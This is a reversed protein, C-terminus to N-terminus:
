LPLVSGGASAWGLVSETIQGECNPDTSVFHDVGTYCRYLEIGNVATPSIYGELGMVFQGECGPDTSVFYDDNGQVCSYLARTFDNTATEYLYGLTSELHFASTNVWGTSVEHVNLDISDTASSDYRDFARLPANPTWVNWAIDWNGVDGSQGRQLPTANPAPRPMSTSLYTEVEGNSGTILSGTPDRLFSGIFNAEYGTMTTDITDLQQWTGTLMDSTRYLQVGPQGREVFGGTTSPARLPLDYLAYTYGDAPNYALDDISSLPYQLGATSLTQASATTFHVGDTSTVKESPSTVNASNANMWVMDISSGTTGSTNWADPQGVGYYVGGTSTHTVVPTPYKHWAMGDTSFAVGISNDTGNTQSTGVYYMAYSYTVGNGLPNVFTGRVVKPNCAFASDWSGATEALVTVPGVVVHLPSLAIEEYQITDTEGAPDGPNGGGCWWFQQVTSTGSGSQIVSPSYDYIGSRGVVGSGVTTSAAAPAATLGLLLPVCALGPLFRRLTALAM